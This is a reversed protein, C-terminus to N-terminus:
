AQRDTDPTPETSDNVIHEDQSAAVDQNVPPSDDSPEARREDTKTVKSTDLKASKKSGTVSNAATQGQM